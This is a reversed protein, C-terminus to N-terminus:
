LFVCGIEKTVLFNTAYKLEKVFTFNQKEIGLSFSFGSISSGGNKKCTEVAENFKEAVRKYNDVTQGDSPMASCILYEELYLPKEM